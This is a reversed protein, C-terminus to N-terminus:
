MLNNAPPVFRHKYRLTLAFTPADETDFTDFSVETLSSAALTGRPTYSPPPPPSNMGRGKRQTRDRSSSRRRSLDPHERPQSEDESFASDVSLRPLMLEPPPPAFSIADKKLLAEPSSSATSTMRRGPSIGETYLGCLCLERVRKMNLDRGIASRRHRTM